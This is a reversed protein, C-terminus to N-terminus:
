SAISMYTVLAIIEGLFIGLGIYAMTKGTKIKKISADLYMGPNESIDKEADRATDLCQKIFVLGYLTPIISFIIGLIGKAYISGANIHTIQKDYPLENEISDILENSM